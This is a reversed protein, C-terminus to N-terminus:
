PESKILIPITTGAGDSHYSPAKSILALPQEFTYQQNGLRAFCSKSASSVVWSFGTVTVVRASSSFTM